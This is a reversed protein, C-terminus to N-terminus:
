SSRWLSWPFSPQNIEGDRAGLLPGSMYCEKLFVLVFLTSPIFFFSPTLQHSCINIIESIKREKSPTFVDVRDTTVQYKIFWPGWYPHAPLVSSLPVHMHFVRWTIITHSKEGYILVLTVGWGVGLLYQRINRAFLIAYGFAHTPSFIANQSFKLYGPKGTEKDTKVGSRKTINMLNIRGSCPLFPRRPPM